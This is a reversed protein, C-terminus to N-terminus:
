NARGLFAEEHAVQIAAVPQDCTMCRIELVGQAKVYRIDLGAKM